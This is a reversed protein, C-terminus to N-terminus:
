YRGGDYDRTKVNLKSSLKYLRSSLRYLRSSLRYLRSSLRRGVARSASDITGKLTVEKDPRTPDDHDSDESHWTLEMGDGGQDCFIM